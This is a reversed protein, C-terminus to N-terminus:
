LILNGIIQKLFNNSFYIEYSKQTNRPFYIIVYKLPFVKIM